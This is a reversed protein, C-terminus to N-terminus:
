TCQISLSFIKKQMVANKFMLINVNWVTQNNNIKLKIAFQIKTIAFITRKYFFNVM